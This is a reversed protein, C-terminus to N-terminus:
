GPTLSAFGGSYQLLRIRGPLPLPAPLEQLGQRSAYRRRNRPMATGAMVSKDKHQVAERPPVGTGREEEVPPKSREGGALKREGLQALPGPRGLPIPHNLVSSFLFPYTCRNQAKCAAGAEPAAM